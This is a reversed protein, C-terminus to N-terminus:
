PHATKFVGKILLLFSPSYQARFHTTIGDARGVAEIWFNQFKRGPRCAWDLHKPAKQAASLKAVIPNVDDAAGFPYKKKYRRQRGRRRCKEM